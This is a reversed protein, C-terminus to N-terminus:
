VENEDSSNEPTPIELKNAFECPMESFNDILYLLDHISQHKLVRKKRYHELCYNCGLFESCDLSDSLTIIHQSPNIELIKHLIELGHPIIFDIIVMEPEEENYFKVAEDFDGILHVDHHAMQELLGIRISNQISPNDIFLIKM